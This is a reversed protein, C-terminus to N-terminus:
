KVINVSSINDIPVTQNGIGVAVTGNTLFAREVIGTVQTNNTTTGTVSKGIFAAGTSLQQNATISKLTESLEINSQLSRMSSIQNLLEENGIPETPDQNQLQTILLKLFSESTLGAFGTKNKDVVAVDSGGTIGSIDM